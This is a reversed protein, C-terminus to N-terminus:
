VNTDPDMLYIMLRDFNGEAQTQRLEDEAQARIACSNPIDFSDFTLEPCYNNLVLSMTRWEKLSKVREMKRRLVENVVEQPADWWEDLLLCKCAPTTCTLGYAGVHREWSYLLAATTDEGPM